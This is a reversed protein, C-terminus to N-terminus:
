AASRQTARSATRMADRQQLVATFARTFTTGLVKGREPATCEIHYWRADPCVSHVAAMYDRCIDATRAAAAPGADDGTQYICIHTGYPRIAYIAKDGPQLTRCIARDHNTVDTRYAQLRPLALKKLREYIIPDNM